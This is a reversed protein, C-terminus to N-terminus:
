TPVIFSDNDSEGFNNLIQWPIDRQNEYLFIVWAKVDPTRTYSLKSYNSTNWIEHM